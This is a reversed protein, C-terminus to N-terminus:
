LEASVDHLWIKPLHTLMFVVGEALDELAKIIHNPIEENTKTFMQTDPGSEHLRSVHM